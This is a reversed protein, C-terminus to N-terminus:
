SDTEFQLLEDQHQLNALHDLLMDHSGQLVLLEQSKRAIMSGLQDLQRHADQRKLRLENRRDAVTTTKAM